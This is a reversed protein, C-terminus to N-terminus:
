KSDTSIDLSIILGPIADRGVKVTIPPQRASLVGVVVPFGILVRLRESISPRWLSYIAGDGGCFVSLDAIDEHGRIVAWSKEAIPIM